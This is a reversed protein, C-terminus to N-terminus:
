GRMLALKLLAREMVAMTPARSASRLTLDTEVLLAIADELRHYRMLYLIPSFTEECVLPSQAPMEVLAPRVYCAGPFLGRVREGGHVTAGEHGARALFHAPTVGIVGGGLVLTRM